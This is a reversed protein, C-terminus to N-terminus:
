RCKKTPAAAHAIEAEGLVSHKISYIYYSLILDKETHFLKLM